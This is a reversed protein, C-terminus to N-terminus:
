FDEITEVPMSEQSVQHAPTNTIEEQSFNRSVEINSGIGVRVLDVRKESIAPDDTATKSQDM